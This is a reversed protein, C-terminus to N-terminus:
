AARRAALAPPILRHALSASCGLLLGTKEICDRLEILSQACGLREFPVNAVIEGREVLDIVEVFFTDPLHKLRILLLSMEQARFQEAPSLSAGEAQLSRVERDLKTLLDNLDPQVRQGFAILIKFVTDVAPDLFPPILSQLNNGDLNFMALYRDRVPTGPYIKLANFLHDNPYLGTLGNEILFSANEKLENFSTEPDFMIYDLELAIGAAALLAIARRNQEVTTGKRYRALVSDSGNEIGIELALCNLSGIEHLIQAHRVVSDSTATGSWTIEPNWSHLARSFELTRRINVFFNADHFSVHGFPRERYLLKMEELLSPVSRYRYKPNMVIISCFTCRKPCGRSSSMFISRAPGSSRRHEIVERNPGFRWDRAPFPLEDLAVLDTADATAVVEGDSRFTLSQINEFRRHGRDLQRCLQLMPMEGDNRVVVDIDPYHGIIEHSCPSVHPGGFVILTSPSVERVLRAVALAADFTKTYSTFGVVGYRALGLEEILETTPKLVDGLDVLDVEFGDERLVAAIYALGLPPVANAEERENARTNPPNILAVRFRRPESRGAGESGSPMRRPLNSPASM